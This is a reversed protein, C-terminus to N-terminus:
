GAILSGAMDGVVVKIMLIGTMVPIILSKQSHTRRSNTVVRSTYELHGTAGPAQIPPAAAARRGHANRKNQRGSATEKPCDQIQDRM